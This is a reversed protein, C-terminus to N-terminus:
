KFTQKIEFKEIINPIENLNYHDQSLLKPLEWNVKEGSNETFFIVTHIRKERIFFKFSGYEMTALVYDEKPDFALHTKWGFREQTDWLNENEIKIRTTPCFELGFAAKQMENKCLPCYTFLLNM